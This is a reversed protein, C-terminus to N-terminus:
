KNNTESLPKETEKIQLEDGTLEFYLNQLQHVYKIRKSAEWHYRDFFFGHDIKAVRETGINYESKILDNQKFGIKILWEETLPIPAIDSLSRKIYVSQAYFPEDIKYLKVKFFEIAGIKLPLGDPIHVKNERNITDVYNGIRLVSAKM